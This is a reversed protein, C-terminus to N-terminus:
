RCASGSAVAKAPLLSAMPPSPKRSTNCHRRTVKSGLGRGELEDSALVTMHEKIRDGSIAKLAADIAPTDLSVETDAKAPLTTGACAALLSALTFSLVAQLGSRTSM